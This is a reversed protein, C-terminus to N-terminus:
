GPDGAALLKGDPSFAVCVLDADGGLTQKLTL